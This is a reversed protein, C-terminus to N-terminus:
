FNINFIKLAAVYASYTLVMVTMSALLATSFKMNIKLFLPFVVFFVLSPLVAWFISNSLRSIKEIDKTEIYLWIFSLISIIPLSALIGGAIAYRKGLESIGAIMIASILIKLSFYM